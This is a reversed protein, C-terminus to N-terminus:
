ERLLRNMGVIHKRNSSSLPDKALFIAWQNDGFVRISPSRLSLMLLILVGRVYIAEEAENAM